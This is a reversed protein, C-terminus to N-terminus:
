YTELDDLSVKGENQLEDTVIDVFVQVSAAADAASLHTREAIDKVTDEFDM